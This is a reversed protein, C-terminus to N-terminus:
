KPSSAKVAERLMVIPADGYRQLLTAREKTGEASAGVLAAVLGSGLALAPTLTARRLLADRTRDDTTALLHVRGRVAGLTERSTHFAAAWLAVAVRDHLAVLASAEEAPTKAFALERVALCGAEREPSAAASRLTSTPISVKCSARLALRRGADSTVTTATKEGLEALKAKALGELTREAAGLTALVEDPRLEEGVVVLAADLPRPRPDPLPADGLARAEGTTERLKTLASLSKAYRAGGGRRVLLRELPDLADEVERREALSRKTTSFADNVDGIREALTADDAAERAAAPSDSAAEALTLLLEAGYVTLEAELGARAAEAKATLIAARREPTASGKTAEEFTRLAEAIAQARAKGDFPDYDDPAGGESFLGVRAAFRGDRALVRLLTDESRVFAAGDDVVVPSPPAKPPVVAPPACGVGVAALALLALSARASM